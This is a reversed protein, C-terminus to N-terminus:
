GASITFGRLAWCRIMRAVVERIQVRIIMSSEVADLSFMVRLLSVLDMVIGAVAGGTGAVTWAGGLGRGTGRLLDPVHPTALARAGVGPRDRAAIPAGMPALAQVIGAALAGFSTVAVDLPGAAAAVILTRLAGAGAPARYVLVRAGRWCQRRLRGCRRCRRASLAVRDLEATVGVFALIYTRQSQMSAQHLVLDIPSSTASAPPANTSTAGVDLATSQNLSRRVNCSRHPTCGLLMITSHHSPGSASAGLHPAHPRSKFSLYTLCLAASVPDPLISIISIPRSM